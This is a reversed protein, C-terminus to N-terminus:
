ITKRPHSSILQGLCSAPQCPQNSRHLLEHRRRHASQDLNSLKQTYDTYENLMELYDTLMGAPRGEKAYKEMFDCYKNMFTEYGDLAEKVDPTM